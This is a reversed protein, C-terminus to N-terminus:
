YLSLPTHEGLEDLIVKRAQQMHYRWAVEAADGDRAAILDVIQRHIAFSSQNLSLQDPRARAVFRRLHLLYLEDLMGVILSLVVNDARRVMLRHFEAAAQPFARFDSLISKEMEVHQQLVKLDDATRIKALHNILPPEIILRANFMDRLTAGRLQLLIGVFKAVSEDQPLKIRPGGRAGRKVEVLSEAELIRLAERLSARSVNFEAMLEAESPLADNAKLDGQVVRRRLTEAILEATKPVNIAGGARDPPKKKATNRRNTKM